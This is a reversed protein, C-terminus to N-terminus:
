PTNSRPSSVRIEVRRNAAWASEDEGDVRPEDEGRSLAQIQQRSVGAALLAEAVARARRAGLYRNFGRSGRADAHGVVRLRLTPHARLQEALSRLEARADDSLRTAATEPFSVVLEDEGPAAADAVPPAVRPDPRGASAADALAPASVAPAAADIARQPARAARAEREPRSRHPEEERLAARTTSPEAGPPESAVAPFLEPGLAVNLYAVDALGLALLLKAFRTYM